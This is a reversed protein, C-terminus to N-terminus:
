YSTNTRSSVGTEVSDFAHYVVVARFKELLCRIVRCGVIGVLLLGPLHKMVGNRRDALGVVANRTTRHRLDAVVPELNLRSGYGSRVRM